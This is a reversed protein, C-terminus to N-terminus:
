FGENKLAIRAICIHQLGHSFEAQASEPPRERSLVYDKGYSIVNVHQRPLLYAGDCGSPFAPGFPFLLPEGNQTPDIAKLAVCAGNDHM